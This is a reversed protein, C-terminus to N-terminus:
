PHSKESENDKKVGKEKMSKKKWVVQEKLILNVTQLLLVHEIQHIKETLTEITDKEEIPVIQQQIIPGTDMGEDVFHITVGTYKVGYHFAQEIAAKGPFSPLLSPHLNIIQNPFAQLLTPGILRMYGALVILDIELGKLIEVLVTEFAQKNEYDKPQFAFVPIGEDKARKIVYAEPKDSVLLQIRGALKGKKEADVLSQFNSGNGSAFVAIKKTSM